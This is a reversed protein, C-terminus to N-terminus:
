GGHREIDSRLPAAAFRQKWVRPTLASVERAPHRGVRQLVDILYTYPDIGHLRCTGILSQIIGVAEAGVESSCFLWSRKGMAIPRIGRELHNTDLAVEPDSLFVELAARRELAYHLAKSLPSQPERSLASVQQECWQWFADVPARCHERRAALKAAGTLGQARIWAEQRYLAGILALAEESGAREFGRRMHSWCQAHVVHSRQEAYRAYAAYGDTLLVGSFHEALTTEIHSRARTKAYTFSIEEAEGYLPWFWAAKMKGHGSRGAKIPTEDMALVRSRLVHELQAQHIPALLAAVRMVWRSLTARSLTIGAHLLRQHQRYLPLHYAFKEVVLGALFSVDAVSGAFITEPAPTAVPKDAEAPKIVPCRYELIEFSARRQALRFTSRVGIVEGDELGAPPAVEIVRVPVNEDFRLGTDNVAGDRRKKGRTYTITEEAPPEPPALEENSFSAFLSQQVAPDIALLKESKRGFLQRKFWELQNRASQYRQESERYKQELERRQQEAQHSKQEAERRKSEEAALRARLAENDAQADTLRQSLSTSSM